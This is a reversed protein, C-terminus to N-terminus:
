GETFPLVTFHYQEEWIMLVDKESGDIMPVPTLQGTHDPYCIRDGASTNRCEHGVAVVTGFLKKEQAEATLIIGGKTIEEVADAVVMVKNKNPKIHSFDEIKVM